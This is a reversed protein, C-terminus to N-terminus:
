RVNERDRVVINQYNLCVLKDQQLHALVEERLTKMLQM